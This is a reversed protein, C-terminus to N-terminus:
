TRRLRGSLAMRANAIRQRLNPDAVHALADLTEPAPQESLEVIDPPPPPPPPPLIDPIEGVRFRIDKVPCAPCMQPIRRLLTDKMYVLEHQWQTDVVLVILQDGRLAGPWAVRRLREGVMDTWVIQLRTLRLREPPVIIQVAHQAFEGAPRSEGHNTRRAMTRRCQAVGADQEGGSPQEGGETAAARRLGPPLAEIAHALGAVGRTHAEVGLM